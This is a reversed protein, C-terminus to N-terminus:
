YTKRASKSQCECEGVGSVIFGCTWALSNLSDDRNEIRTCVDHFDGGNFTIFFDIKLNVDSLM